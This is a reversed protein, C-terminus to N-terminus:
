WCALEAARCLMPRIALYDGLATRADNNLLVIRQKNGKGARVTVSDRRESLGRDSLRLACLEGVRL